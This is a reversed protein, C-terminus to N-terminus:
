PQPEQQTQARLPSAETGITHECRNRIVFLIQEQITRVVAETWLAAYPNLHTSLRQHSTLHLLIGDPRSELRYEGDLVDFFAGGITVHDDLTTHPITATNARITFALDQLPEWRYVSETFVLGGTFGANRVGGIGDHSLTAAVPRPFGITYIWSSPLEASSIARVSKINDWVVVAPAHVFIATEVTRTQNPLPIHNEVLILLLPLAFAVITGPSRRQLRGWLLRALLGGLLATTLMIPSAFVLCIIGEWKIAVSVAMTLLVALWPLFLWRWWRQQGPPTTRLYNRVTIYGSVLPVIALFTLTLIGTLKPYLDSLWNSDMAGRFILGIFAGLAVSLSASIQNARSFKPNM